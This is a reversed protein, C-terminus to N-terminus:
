SAARTGLREMEDFTELLINSCTEIERTYVSVRSVFYNYFPQTFFAVILGYATTILAISIGRAVAAPNNLGQKAIVDFSIIMGAVTGYFGLLPALNVVTALVTLYKELFAVEHIAANEMTREIEDRTKGYKLLGSKLIAAIPGRTEECAQVAGKLDGKLLTSRIRGIFASIDSKAKRFVFMKYIITTLSFVSCLTIFHMTNGGDLYYKLLTGGFERLSEM